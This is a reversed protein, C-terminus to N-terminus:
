CSDTMSIDGGKEDGEWRVGWGVGRSQYLPGTETEHAMCCIDM